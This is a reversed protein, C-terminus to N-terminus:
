LESLRREPHECVATLLATWDAVLREVTAREFLDCDYILTGYLRDGHLLWLALDQDTTGRDIGHWDEILLGDAQVAARRPANLFTFLAQFPSRDFHFDPPPFNALLLMFPMEQHSFAGLVTERVRLLVEKLTPDGGLDTRLLLMNTFCGFLQETQLRFRNAGPSGVLIDLQGSHRHLLLKYAALTIMFLSADLERSQRQLAQTLEPPLAFSFKGGRYSPRHPRPRDTRLALQPMGGSLKEGWYALLQALVDDQLRDREWQAYDGYQVSLAPLQPPRGSIKAQYFTALEHFFIGGMSWHDNLIHHMVVLLTSREPEHRM